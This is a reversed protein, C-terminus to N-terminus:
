RELLPPPWRRGGSGYQERLPPEHEIAHPFPCRGQSVAYRQRNPRNGGNPRNEHESARESENAGAPLASDNRRQDEHQDESQDDGQVSPPRAIMEGAAIKLGLLAGEMRAREVE